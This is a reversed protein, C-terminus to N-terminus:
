SDCLSTTIILIPCCMYSFAETYSTLTATVTLTFTFLLVFCSYVKSYSKLYQTIIVIPSSLVLVLFNLWKSCYLPTLTIFLVVCFIARSCFILTTILIPVCAHPLKEMPSLYCCTVITVVLIACNVCVPFLKVTLFYTYSSSFPVVVLWLYPFAQFYLFITIHHFHYIEYCLSQSTRSCSLFTLIIIPPPCCLHYTYHQFHSLVLM